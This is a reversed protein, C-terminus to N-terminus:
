TRIQRWRGLIALFLLLATAGLFIRPTGAQISAASAGMFDIAPIPQLPGMYWFLTYVAEFTRSTGTWIGLALALAPIFAAGTLFGALDALNGQALLRIGIIAGTLLAVGVGGLWAAALQLRLPHPASFLVQDTGYRRERVGLPSWVLIPWIWILPLVRLRATELPTVASAIWGGAAVLYWWFSVGKLLLRMEAILMRLLRSPFFGLRGTRDSSAAQYHGAFSGAASAAVTEAPAVIPKRWFQRRVRSPVAMERSFRDFLKSGALVFGAAVMVWLARSALLAPSWSMGNWEFTQLNWVGQGRFNIGIALSDHAPDYAPFAAKCARMMSPLLWGFGIFDHGSGRSGVGSAVMGFSWFFFYAVNGAGGRLGPACEFFAAVAAIVLMSPLTLFLYPALLAAPQLSTAEARAIQTVAGALAVALAILGLLAFNSLAKSLVYSFRTIPTAALIQGVGTTRDREIANKILYFGILGLFTATLLAIAAGVWASNYIGRYSGLRLTVYASHNPPLFAYGAYLSFALTVLFGFRRTRELFDGRALLLALGPGKM